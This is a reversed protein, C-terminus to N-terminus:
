FKAPTVEPIIVLVDYGKVVRLLNVNDIKLHNKEIAKRIPEMNFLHWQNGETIRFLPKLYSLYFGNQTDVESPPFIEFISGLFGSEGVIMIHFSEQFNSKTINSVMNGIDYVTLFSEGRALHNAGYKFLNKSDKWKPYDKMLQNLILKVRKNHNQEKYISVSLRMDNIIQHEEETLELKELKDLQMLFDSSMFYMTMPNHTNKLFDEYFLKSQEIITKYIPIAQPNKTRKLVDEFILQDDFMVIQDSGLLNTGSNMIHELLDYEPKLSYFSLINKYKSLFSKQEEEPLKFSGELLKTTYPDVEIYFNDFKTIDSIAKIFLPIENSFHDEGVLINQSIEVKNKIYDWGDGVFGEPQPSFLKLNEIAMRSFISDQSFTTLSLTFAFLTIGILKM